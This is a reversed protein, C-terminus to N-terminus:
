SAVAKTKGTNIDEYRVCGVDEILEDKGNFVDVVIGEGYQHKIQMYLEVKNNNMIKIYCYENEIEVAFKRKDDFVGIEGDWALLNREEDEPDDQFTPNILHLCVSQSIGDTTYLEANVAVMVPLVDVYVNDIDSNDKDQHFLKM